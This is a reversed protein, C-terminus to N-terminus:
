KQLALLLVVPVDLDVRRNPVLRHLCQVLSRQLVPADSTGTMRAADYIEGVTEGEPSIVPTGRVKGASILTVTEDSSDM